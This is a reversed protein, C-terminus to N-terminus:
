IVSFVDPLDTLHGFSSKSFFFCAKPCVVLNGDVFYFSELQPQHDCYKSIRVGDALLNWQQLRSSLLESKTKPLELDRVLDKLENQSIFHQEHSICSAVYSEQSSM